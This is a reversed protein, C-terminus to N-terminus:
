QNTTVIQNELEEEQAALEFRGETKPPRQGKGSERHTSYSKQRNGSSLIPWFLSWAM